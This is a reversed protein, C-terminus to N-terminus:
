LNQLQLAELVSIVVKKMFMEEINTPINELNLKLYTKPSVLDKLINNDTISAYVDETSIEPSIPATGSRVLNLKITSDSKSFWAEGDEPINFIAEMNTGLEELRSELYSPIREMSTADDSDAVNVLIEPASTTLSQNIASLMSVAKNYMKQLNVYYEKLATDNNM